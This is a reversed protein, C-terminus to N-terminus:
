VVVVYGKLLVLIDAGIRGNLSCMVTFVVSILTNVESIHNLHNGAGGETRNGRRKGSATAELGGASSQTSPRNVLEEV